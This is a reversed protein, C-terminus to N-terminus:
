QVRSRIRAHTKQTSLSRNSYCEHANNSKRAPLRSVTTTRGAARVAVVLSGPAAARAVATLMAPIVNPTTFLTRLRHCLHRTTKTAFDAPDKKFIIWSRKLEDRLFAIQTLFRELLFRTEIITPQYEHM